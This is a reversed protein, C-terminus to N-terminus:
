QINNEKLFRKVKECLNKGYHLSIFALKVERDTFSPQSRSIARRSLQIVTRSLSRARVFRKLTTANRLMQIHIEEIEPSTDNMKATKTPDRGIKLFL